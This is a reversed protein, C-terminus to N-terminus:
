YRATKGIFVARQARVYLLRADDLSLSAKGHDREAAGAVPVPDDQAALASGHHCGQEGVDRDFRGAAAGADSSTDLIVGLEVAQDVPELIEGQVQDAEAFEVEDFGCVGRPSDGPGTAM